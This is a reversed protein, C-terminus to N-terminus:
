EVVTWDDALMDAQSALWGLQVGSTGVFALADHGYAKHDVNVVTGDANTYSVNKALEIYQGRGNWGERTIKAGKKCMELAIGFNLCSAKRYAEEFALKPSWSTYGDQYRVIYGDESDTKNRGPIAGVIKTGIYIDFESDPIEKPDRAPKPPTEYMIDIGYAKACEHEIKCGRKVAWGDCFYAVDAQSLLALSKSLYQLPVNAGKAFKFDDFFSELIEVEDNYEDKVAKIARNRSDLIEEDSLGNMPQSIFVKKM